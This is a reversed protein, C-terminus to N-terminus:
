CKGYYKAGGTSLSILGKTKEQLRRCLRGDPYNTKIHYWMKEELTGNKPPYKDPNNAITRSSLNCM